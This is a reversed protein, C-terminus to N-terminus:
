SISLVREFGEKEAETPEATACGFLTLWPAHDDFIGVLVEEDRIQNIDLSAANGGDALASAGKTHPPQASGQKNKKGYCIRAQARARMVKLTAADCHGSSRRRKSNAEMAFKLFDKNSYAIHLDDEVNIQDPPLFPIVYKRLEEDSLDTAGKMESNEVRAGKRIASNGAQPPMKQRLNYSKIAGRRKKVNCKKDDSTHKMAKKVHEIPAYGVHSSNEFDILTWSAIKEAAEKDADSVRYEPKM